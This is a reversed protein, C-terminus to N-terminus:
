CIRQMVVVNGKCLPSKGGRAKIGEIMRHVLHHARELLIM